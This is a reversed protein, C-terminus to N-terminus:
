TPSVHAVSRAQAQPLQAHCANGTPATLIESCSSVHNPFTRPIWARCCACSTMIAAFVCRKCRCAASCLCASCLTCLIFCSVSGPVIFPNSVARKYAKEIKTCLKAIEDLFKPNAPKSVSSVLVMLKTLNAMAYRCLLVTQQNLFTSNPSYALHEM